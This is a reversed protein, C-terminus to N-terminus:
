SVMKTYEAAKKDFAPRNTVYQEAISTVLPDEPNPNELLDYLSLLVSAMKTSPKWTEAKLVGICINGDSDINPHYMKTVFKLTPAKFPFEYGFKVSLRFKGGSYPGPPGAMTVNWLLLNDGEIEIDINTLPNARLESLERQARKVAASSM